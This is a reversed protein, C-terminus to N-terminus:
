SHGIVDISDANVGALGQREIRDADNGSEGAIERRAAHSAIPLQQRNGLVLRKVCDKARGVAAVADVSEGQGVEIAAVDDARPRRVLYARQNAGGAVSQRVRIRRGARISRDVILLGTEDHIIVDHCSPNKWGVIGYRRLAASRFEALDDGKRSREVAGHAAHQAVPLGQLDGLILGQESYKARSVAPVADPRELKGIELAPADHARAARVSDSRESLVTPRQRRGQGGAVKGSQPRWQEGQVAVGASRVGVPDGTVSLDVDAAERGARGPAIGDVAACGCRSGACAEGEGAAARLGNADNM